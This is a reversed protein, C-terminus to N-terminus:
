ATEGEPKPLKPETRAFLYLLFFFPILTVAFLPQGGHKHFWGHIMEPGYLDCQIALVLIRIGNRLIGLPIVLLVIASRKWPTKLFLYSAVLSTVFLVLTSRIGSCEPAVEMDIAPMEFVLGTKFVPIGALKIFIYSLEASAHQFFTQIAVKVEITFPTLFILLLIPFINTKVNQKGCLFVIVAITFSVYAGISYSLYSELEEGERGLDNKFFAFLALTGIAAPILAYFRNPQTKTLKNRNEWVLYLVVAPILITHSYLDSSTALGWLDLLPSYFLLALLGLAVLLPKNYSHPEGMPPAIEQRPDSPSAPLIKM